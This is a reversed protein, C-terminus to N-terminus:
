RAPPPSPSAGTSEDRASRQRWEEVNLFADHKATWDIVDAQWRPFEEVAISPELWDRLGPSRVWAFYQHVSWGALLVVASAFALALIGSRAAGRRWVADLALGVFLYLIPVFIVGRAGNLSGITLAQTAIFPVLFLLWWQWTDRLRVLSILLGAALLWKTVRPFAGDDVRLYRQVPEGRKLVRWGVLEFGKGGFMKAILAAKVYLPREANPGGLVFIERTRTFFPEPDALSRLAQPLFLIIAILATVALGVAIRRRAIAPRLLAGIGIALVAAIVTRGSFYGYLGLASWLGAWVFSRLRGTRVASGISVGAAGLFLCTQVNEWGTRSFHLYWVDSALLLTAALAAPACLLPRALLYFPVLAAVSYLAAPLRLAVLSDSARMFLALVHVNAAPQPKWDLGFFGPGRHNLIQYVNVLNDCEDHIVVPPIRGLGYLRLALAGSMLAALLAWEWGAVRGSPETDM